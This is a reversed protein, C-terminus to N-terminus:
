PRIKIRFRGNSITTNGNIGTASGEFRADINKKDIDNNTIVVKFSSTNNNVSTYISSKSPIDMFNFSTQDSNAYYTGNLSIAADFNVNIDISTDGTIFSHGKIFLSRINRRNIAGLYATDIVGNYTDSKEEFEWWDYVKAFFNRSSIGYKITLSFVGSTDPTGHGQLVITQMGTSNFTGTASFYINNVTDTTITYTGKKSVDVPLNITHTNNLAIGSPYEAIASNPEGNLSGVSTNKQSSQAFDPNYKKECACLLFIVAIPSIYKTM